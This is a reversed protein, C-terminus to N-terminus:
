PTYGHAVIEGVLAEPSCRTTDVALEALGRYLPERRRALEEIEAVADGGLLAPRATSDAAMRERLVAADARLWVCRSRERLLARNEAGEVVGGGTALVRAGDGALAGHLATRELQRFRELGLREIVDGASALGALAAVADDLDVFPCGLRAALARGVSTKGSCRPGILAVVEGREAGM